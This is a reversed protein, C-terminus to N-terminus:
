KSNIVKNLLVPQLRTHEVSVCHYRLDDLKASHLHGHINGVYRRQLQDPHVPVHTLIFGHLEISGVIKTFYKQYVELPYADHNGLVLKKNGNLVALIGHHDKGGFFVDGLHWVTDCPRVIANWKEVLTRDHEEITTFPRLTPEFILVNAHSFHTDAIIYVNNRHSM